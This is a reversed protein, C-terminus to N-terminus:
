FEQTVRTVEDRTTVGARVKNLGDRRLTRLAGREIAEHKIVSASTGDKDMIRVRVPEEDSIRSIGYLSAYPPPNSSM